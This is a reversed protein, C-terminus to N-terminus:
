WWKKALQMVPCEAGARFGASKSCTMLKARPPLFAFFPFCFFVQCLTFTPKERFFAVQRWRAASPLLDPCIYRPRFLFFPAEDIRSLTITDKFNIPQSVNKLIFFLQGGMVILSIPLSSSAASTRNGATLIQQQQWSDFNTTKLEATLEWLQSIKSTILFTIEVLSLTFLIWKLSRSSSNKEM